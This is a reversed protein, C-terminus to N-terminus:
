RIINTLEELVEDAVTITRANASFGRQAVILQTFERAIDVNSTELQNGIVQGRGGTSGAGIAPSGSNTTEMFYSGGQGELAGVNAFSALAMQALPFNRGNSAIGTLEGTPSVAVTVLTGPQFGDQSQSLSYETAMHNLDEFNLEITQTDALSDFDIEINADGVGNTGGVLFTGDENFQLDLVVNDVITGSEEDTLNATLSWGHDSLKEFEFRIAHRFGRKDFAEMTTEYMDGRKGVTTVLMSNNVFESQGVNGTADRITLSSFAEGTDDATITLIGDTDLAATAGVLQGNLANVIDGMTAGQANITTSLPSGDPNSGTIEIQDGAQYNTMNIDLDDLMTTMTAPGTATSFPSTSSLVEALPPIASSPLNGLFDIETTQLGPVPAGLPIKIRNDGPVQFGFNDDSAEGLFGTRQVLFGTAPDVLNGRGDLAFSGARTFVREGVPGALTFFGDGQIAFDLLEGTSQLTGQSFQRSIQSIEVGTGIQQPNVGGFNDRTSDAGPRVTNYMLDSFISTQAKFGTTNLNALNNAVVDLQQQHARLGSVGTMLSQSM